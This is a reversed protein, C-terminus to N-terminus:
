AKEYICLWIEPFAIFFVCFGVPGPFHYKNTNRILGKLYQFAVILDKQLKGRKLSFMLGEYKRLLFIESRQGDGHGGNPGSTVSM